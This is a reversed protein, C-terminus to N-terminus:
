GPAELENRRRGWGRRWGVDELGKEGGKFISFAVLSVRVTHIVTQM